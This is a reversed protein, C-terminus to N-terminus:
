RLFGASRAPRRESTWRTCARTRRSSTVVRSPASTIRGAKSSRRRPPRRKRSKWEVFRISPWGPLSLADGGRALPRDGVTHARDPSPSAARPPAGPPSSAGGKWIQVEHRTEPNDSSSGAAARPTPWCAGTPRGPRTWTRDRARRDVRDIRNTKLDLIFIDFVGREDRGTFAIQPKDTRPSCRPTQNYKGQFTVGSPAAAAPAADRLDASLGAPESVFAIQSATPRSRRRATSPRADADPAGARPRGRPQDPLDRLQRRAVADARHRARRAVVGRGHQARAAEVRAPGTRRGGVRDLPRPQQAPVVHVRDRGGGPSYAPLLCDSGMKTLVRWGGATWTSPASRTRGRGTMAFAIRSGFVGRKGTFSQVIDNAFEHVADRIDGGRYTKTLTPTDGRAVVYVRGELQGGSAKMKIVAQAGVQTWLASSFGLGESQLQAPFSAPDLVQFLGTVDMDKSMRRSRAPARRRGGRAPVALRLMEVGAGSLRIPPLDEDGTPAQARAAAAGLVAGRRSRVTWSITTVSCAAKIGRIANVERLRRWYRSGGSGPPPPPVKRTLQAASVCADDVLPQRLVEDAQDGAAHRGDTSRSRPDRAADRIQEADIGAPLNYNQLLLGKVEAM